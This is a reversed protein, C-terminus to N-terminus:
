RLMTASSCVEAAGRSSSAAAWRASASAPLARVTRQAGASEVDIDQEDAVQDNVDRIQLDRVRPHPFPAKHQHRQGVERGFYHGTAQVVNHPRADDQGTGQARALPARGWRSFSPGALVSHALSVNALLLPALFPSLLSRVM